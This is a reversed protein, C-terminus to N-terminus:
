HCLEYNIKKLSHYLLKRILNQSLVCNLTIRKFMLISTSFVLFINLLSFAQLKHYFNWGFNYKEQVQCILGHMNPLDILM